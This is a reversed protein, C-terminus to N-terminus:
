DSSIKNENFIIQARSSFRNRLSNMVMEQEDAKRPFKYKSRTTPIGIGTCKKCYREKLVVSQLNSAREMVAGIFSIHDETASFGDLGLEKLPLRKSSDVPCVCMEWPANNREGYIKNREEEGFCIHDHDCVQM